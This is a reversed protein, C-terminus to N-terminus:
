QEAREYRGTGWNFKVGAPKQFSKSKKGLLHKARNANVKARVKAEVKTKRKHAVGLVAQLNSERNKGGLWLATIHDFEIKDGPVFVHGTLACRNDQRDLIRLQCLRPATSDDTKGIWETVTRAM